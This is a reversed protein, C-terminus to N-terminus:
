YRLLTAGYTLGAGFAILLLLDGRRVRGDRVAEDLAVPITAASTNGTRDLNVIVKGAPLGLHQALSDIIRRNAQHPILFKIQAPTTNNKELISNTVAAMNRVAHKFVERGNMRIFRKAGPEARASGGAPVILLRSLSGDAHLQTDILRSDAATAAAAASAAATNTNANSASAAATNSAASTNSAATTNTDALASAPGLVAAGAADGFLVCTARDNWDVLSSLKESAIVLARKRHGTALFNRATELAYLFGTCAANLDFCAANQPIGLKHQVLCATSPLPYDPSVTAVILLDIDAPTLRAAALANQAARVALDSAAEDEAAIHRRRIGTRTVIWEDNTDVKHSLEENTLIRRPLYSGTGLVAIAPAALPSDATM